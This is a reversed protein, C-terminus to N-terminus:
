IVNQKECMYMAFDLASKKLDGDLCYDIVDEIKPRNGKKVVYPIYKKEDSM